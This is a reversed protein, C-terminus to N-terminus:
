RASRRSASRAPAYAGRADEHGMDDDKTEPPIACCLQAESCSCWASREPDTCDGMCDCYEQEFGSDNGPCLVKANSDDDEDSGPEQTSNM